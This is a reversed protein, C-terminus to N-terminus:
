IEYPKICLVCGMNLLYQVSECYFPLTPVNGPTRTRGSDWELTCYLFRRLEWVNRWGELKMAGLLSKPQHRQGHSKTNFLLWELTKLKCFVFIDYLSLCQTGYLPPCEPFYHIMSLGLLLRAISLWHCWIINITNFIEKRLWRWGLIPMKTETLEM